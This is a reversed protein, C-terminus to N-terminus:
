NELLRNTVLIKKNLDGFNAVSNWPQKRTLPESRLTDRSAVHLRLAHKTIFGISSGKFRYLNSISWVIYATIHVLGGGSHTEEGEKRRKKQDQVKVGAAQPWWGGLFKWEGDGEM